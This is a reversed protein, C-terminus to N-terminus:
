LGPQHQAAQAPPGLHHHEGADVMIAGNNASSTAFVERVGTGARVQSESHSSTNYVLWIRGNPASPDLTDVVVGPNGAQVAGNQAVVQQAGWSVGNDTSRRMVIDINGFDDCSAVRGEAFALLDSNPLKIVAPIRYCAYGGIGNAFM